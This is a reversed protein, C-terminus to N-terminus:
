FLEPRESMFLERRPMIPGTPMVGLPNVTCGEFWGCQSPLSLRLFQRNTNQSQELSEHVCYPDMWYVTNEELLLSAEDRCQERMHECEGQLYPVGTFWQNWARCGVHSSVSLMGTGKTSNFVEGSLDLKKPKNPSPQNPRRKDDPTGPAKYWGGGWSGSGDGGAWSGSAIMKDAASSPEFGDVHIGRRRHTKGPEVAKEDITIYGVEGEYPQMAFLDSLLPKYHALEQPISDMDGLIIPMMLIRTGSFRPFAVEGLRVINSHFELM